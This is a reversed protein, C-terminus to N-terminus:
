GNSWIETLGAQVAALDKELGAAFRRRQGVDSAKTQEIWVELQEGRNTRSVDGHPAPDASVDIGNM